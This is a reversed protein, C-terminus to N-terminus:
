GGVMHLIGVSKGQTVLSAVSEKVKLSNGSIVTVETYKEGAAGEKGKATKEELHTINSVIFYVPYDDVHTAKILYNERGM